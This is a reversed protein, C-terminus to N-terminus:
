ATHTHTQHNDPQLVPVQTPLAVDVQPPRSSVALQGFGAPVDQYRRRRRGERLGLLYGGVDLGVPWICCSVDGLVCLGRNNEERMEKRHAGLHHASLVAGKDDLGVPRHQRAALPAIAAQPLAVRVVQM